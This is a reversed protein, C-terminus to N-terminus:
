GRKQENIIQNFTNCNSYDKKKFNCNETKGFDYLNGNNIRSNADNINTEFNQKLKSKDSKQELLNLISVRRKNLSIRNKKKDKDKRKSYNTNNSKPSM